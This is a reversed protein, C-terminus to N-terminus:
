GGAKLRELEQAQQKRMYFRTWLVYEDNGMRQRMEAVTMGGLKSALYFEFELDPDNELALYAAKGPV